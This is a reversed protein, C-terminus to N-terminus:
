PTAGDWKAGKRLNDRAWLPQLNNLAWAAKFQPCDLGTIRFSALPRIHDVHWRGYNDWAMGETFQAELHAKLADVSYGLIVFTSDRNKTGKLSDRLAARFTNRLRLDIARRAAEAENRLDIGDWLHSFAADVQAISGHAVFSSVVDRASSRSIRFGDAVKAVAAFCAPHQMDPWNEMLAVLDVPGPPTPIRCEFTM